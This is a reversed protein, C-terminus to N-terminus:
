WILLAWKAGFQGFTVPPPPPPTGGTTSGTSGGTTAGKTGGKTGGTTGGTTSPRPPAPPTSGTTGGTTGSTSGSTSGGIVSRTTGGNNSQNPPVQSAPPPPPPSEFFDFVQNGLRGVRGNEPATVLASLVVESAPTNSGQAQASWQVRVTVRHLRTTGASEVSFVGTMQVGNRGGPFQALLGAPITFPVNTALQRNEPQRTRLHELQQRAIALAFQRQEATRQIRSSTDLMTMLGLSLMVMIGLSIVIVVLSFARRRRRSRLKRILHPMPRAQFTPMPTRTRELYRHPFTRSRGM